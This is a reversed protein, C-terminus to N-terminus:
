ELDTPQFLQVTDVREFDRDSTAFAAAGCVLATALLLSDITMLRHTVEALALTSTLARLQGAECRALLSRCSPSVGTFHHLFITADLFVRSGAPIESLPKAREATLCGM